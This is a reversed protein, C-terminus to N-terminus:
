PNSIQHASMNKVTGAVMASFPAEKGLIDCAFCWTKEFLRMRSAMPKDACDPRHGPFSM